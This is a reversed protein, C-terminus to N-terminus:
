SRFPPEMLPDNEDKGRGVKVVVVTLDDLQPQGQSFDRVARYLAEVLVGATDHAHDRAVDLIRQVGFLTNEPSIAEDFGDTLLLVTDGPLLPITPAVAYAVNAQVGLPVGTRKLVVKVNGAADIVYGSQHGASAYTLSLSRSDLKALILTVFRELGVDEALVLNARSLIEGVDARNRALIRLYARTEAMLLAPGIGHGAVDAVVVGLCGDAMMLYDFYDGGTAEAAYSAGAIDFPSFQPPAKPFLRQQIERAVRFQEQNERLEDEARKRERREVTERLEREVAPVLRRLNGKMIYDKAGNKMAAVALEEGITGSVIIFPLDLQKQKLLELAALANFQPMSFDAVVLDWSQRDLAESMAAPNDVREFIPEYAARRLEHLLLLADPESDEVILIRIPKSM